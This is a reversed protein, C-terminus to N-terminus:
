GVTPHPIRRHGVVDDHDAAADLPVHGCQGRGQLLGDGVDRVLLRVDAVPEELAATLAAVYGEIGGGVVVVDDTM